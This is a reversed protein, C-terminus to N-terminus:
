DGGGGWLLLIDLEAAYAKTEATVEEMTRNRWTLLSFPIVVPWIQLNPHVLSCNKADCNFIKDVVIAHSSTLQWSKQIKKKKALHPRTKVSFNILFHPPLVQETITNRKVM